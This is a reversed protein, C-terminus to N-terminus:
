YVCPLARVSFFSKTLMYVIVEAVRRPRNYHGYEHVSSVCLLMQHQFMEGNVLVHATLLFIFINPSTNITLHIIDSKDDLKDLETKLGIVAM